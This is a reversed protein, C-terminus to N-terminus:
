SRAPLDLAPLEPAPAGHRPPGGPRSSSPAVAGIRHLAFVREDERLRCWAILLAGTLEVPEIVRQTSSGQANTYHIEVPRGTEIAHALLRREGPALHTTFEALEGEVGDEQPSPEAEPGGPDPVRRPVPQPAPVPTALLARAFELPEPPTSPEAAAPAVGEASAARPADVAGAPAGAPHRGRARRREVRELVPVGDPSEAVPAYGAARLAALTEPVGVASGLVTPAVMSLGLSRLARSKAIEALLAPDDSCLVCAVPRVRVAGHRRAVDAILYELPQPLVGGVARARLDAVLAEPAYGRDLARRVSGASFRWTVAGGGAERDAATDLLAALPGAPAGPVLATLDTQFIAETVADPLLSQCAAVLRSSDAALVRGLPTLTRHAIVGLLEAERWAATIFRGADPHGSLALPSHWCVAATLGSLDALAREPPLSDAFRLLHERAAVAVQGHYDRLLAAGSRPDRDAPALLPATGLDRWVALLEALKRAPTAAAWEDYGDTPLLLANSGERVRGVLKAEYVMELWLRTTAEDTGVARALRRLEKVGVGGAKLMTVPTAAVTDLLLTVQEVAASGAAAAEQAVAEPDVAVLPPDPRRPTFPAHWGEGRLAVAVERPVQPGGPPCVVVLGRERAWVLDPDLRYQHCGYWDAFGEVPPGEAALKELAARARPGAGAVLRRVRAPDAHHESIRAVLASKRGQTPLGLTRGITRLQNAPLAGLLHAAPPGLRLPHRFFQYLPEALRLNTGDPWALARAALLDLVDTLDPDDPSRGLWAALAARDGGDRGLLQLVEVVELAPTPLAHAATAVSSRIELREALERLHRPRPPAMADPRAALIGALQEPDRTALWSTLSEAVVM